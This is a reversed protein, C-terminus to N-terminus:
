AGASLMTPTVTTRLAADLEPDRTRIQGAAAQVTASSDLRPLLQALWDYEPFVSLERLYRRTTGTLRVPQDADALKVLARSLRLTAQGALLAAWPVDMQMLAVDARRTWLDIASLILPLEPRPAGAAFGLRYTRSSADRQASVSGRGCGLVLGVLPLLRLGARLRRM